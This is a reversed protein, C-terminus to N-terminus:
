SVNQNQLLVAEHCTLQTVIYHWYLNEEEQNPNPLIHYKLNDRFQCPIHVSLIKGIYSTGM